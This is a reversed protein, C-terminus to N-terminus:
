KKHHIFVPTSKAHKHMTHRMVFIMAFFLAIYILVIYVM